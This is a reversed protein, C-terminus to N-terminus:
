LIVSMFGAIIVLKLVVTMEMIRVASSNVKGTPKTPLRATSSSVADTFSEAPDIAQVVSATFTDNFIFSQTSFPPPGCYSGNAKSQDSSIAYTVNWVITYTGEDPVVSCGQYSAGPFTECIPTDSISGDKFSGIGIAGIMTGNPAYLTVNVLRTFDALSPTMNLGADARRSVPMTGLIRAGSGESFGYCATTNVSVGSLPRILIADDPPRVAGILGSLYLTTLVLVIKCLFMM